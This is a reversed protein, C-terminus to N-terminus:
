FRAVSSLVRGGYLRALATLFGLGLGLAFSLLSLPVTFILGATVFPWFSDLMIKLWHM